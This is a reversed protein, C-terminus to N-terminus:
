SASRRVASGRTGGGHRRLAVFIWATLLDDSARDALEPVVRRPVHRQDGMGSAILRMTCGPVTRCRALWDSTRLRNGRLDTQEPHYDTGAALFDFPARLLDRHDELHIWHAMTGGPALLSALHDLVPGCQAAPVHEMVSDSHILRLPEPLTVPRGADFPAVYRTAIGELAADARWDIAALRRFRADLADDAVWPRLIDRCAALDSNRLLQAMLRPQLIRNYDLAYIRRAGLLFYVMPEAVLHGCGFEACVAGELSDVGIQRLRGCLREAIRELRKSGAALRRARWGQAWNEAHGAAGVRRILRERLRGPIRHYLYQALALM